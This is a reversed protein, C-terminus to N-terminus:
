RNDDINLPNDKDEEWKYPNEQIYQRIKNLENNNRIIHEYYNRQWIPVGITNQKQKIRRTSFTKFQRIIESLPQIKTPASELDARELAPKSGANQLAPKSGAGVGSHNIQIIGHIHNPMIIFYDLIIKNYNPLDKWTFEVIDGIANLKMKGMEIEGFLCERNHTCITIFYYGEKSYDYNKLRISRRHHKEPNCKMGLLM